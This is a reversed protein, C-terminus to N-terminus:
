FSQIKVTTMVTVDHFNRHLVTTYLLSVPWARRNVFIYVANTSHYLCLFGSTEPFIFQALAMKDM